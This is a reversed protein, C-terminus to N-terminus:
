TPVPASTGNNLGACNRARALDTTVENAFDDELVDDCSVLDRITDLVDASIDALFGDVRDRYPRARQLLLRFERNILDPLSNRGDFIETESM